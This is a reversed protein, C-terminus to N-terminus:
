GTGLWADTPRQYEGSKRRCSLRPLKILLETGTEDSQDVSIRGGHREVIQRCIALGLGTGKAKDTILPEFLRGRLEVAVGPGTDRIRVCDFDADSEASVVVRGEGNMAQVANLLLNDLVRALQDPDACILFPAREFQTDLTVATHNGTRQFADRVATELEVEALDPEKSRTMDMLDHIIRDATVIEREMVELYERWKGESEPLKRSLYFKANRIAGLPNRLDHAVSAAVEGIAALRTKLVLQDRVRDLEREVSAQENRQQEILQQQARRAVEEARRRESIDLLMAYYGRVRGHPDYDPTLTGATWRNKGHLYTRELEFSVQEGSLVRDIYPQLSQYSADGIVEWVHRGVVQDEPLGLWREAERNIFRIRRDADVRTLMGPVNDAVLRLRQESEKLEDDAKKRESIDTLLAVFGSVEGDEDRHPVYVGSVYRAKVGFIAQGERAVVQGRLASEILNRDEEYQAEGLIERVTRGVVEDAPLDLWRAAQRNILQYRQNRDVYALWVPVHDYVLRLLQESTKLKEEAQKRETIDALMVCYGQVEGNQDFNPAVSGTVWRPGGAYPRLGDVTVTEGAFARDIEPKIEAWADSGVVDEVRQGIIQEIPKGFWTACQANATRYRLDRDVYALMVPVNDYILRLLSENATVADEALTRQTIDVAMLCYGQIAGNEDADPIMSGTVWRSGGAYDRPGDLQVPEGQLAREADPKIQAWAEEGAVEELKHGVIDELPRQYWQEAERNAARFCLDRDVYALLMPVNDYVLRLLRDREALERETRKLETVDTAIGGLGTVRGNEDTTPFKLTLFVREQDSGDLLAREERLVPKGTNLVELDHERVFKGLSEYHIDEPLKGAVDQNRLNFRREFQRSIRVYRGEVDKLFIEAPSNEFIADLQAQKERLTREIELRRTLDSEVGIMRAPRGSDTWAVVKARVRHWRYRGDGHMLRHESEYLDSAGAQHRALRARIEELDDPHVRDEWASIHGRVRAPNLGMAEYWRPSFYCEGSILNWDWLGDQSVQLALDLRRESQALVRQMERRQFINLSLVLVAAVLVVLVAVVLILTDRDIEFFRSPANIVRSDAPLASLAVGLRQLQGHDFLHHMPSTTVAPLTGKGRLVQLVKAAAAEGHLRTDTVHGGVAGFGVLLDWSTYVPAKTYSVIVSTFKRIGVPTAAADLPAGLPVVIADEGLSKLRNEIDQLLADHWVDIELGPHAAAFPAVSPHGEFDPSIFVVRKIWPHLALATDLTGSLDASVVVGTVDPDGEFRAATGADIGAFVVPAKFLVQDRHAMVMELAPKGLTVLADFQRGPYKAELLSVLAERYRQGRARPLGMYETWVEPAQGNQTLGQRLGADMLDTFPDGQYGSNLVLISKHVSLKEAHDAWAVWPLLSALLTALM